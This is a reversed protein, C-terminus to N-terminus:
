PNFMRSARDSRTPSIDLHTWNSVKGKTYEPNELFIGYKKMIKPNAQCLKALTQKSDDLIDIALCQMHLSKKAAGPTSSNVESPRFGSSVKRPGTYGIEDLFSNVAELLKVANSKYAETLEKHTARSPYTGSATLYDSLTIM